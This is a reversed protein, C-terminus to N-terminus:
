MYNIFNFGLFKKSLSQLVESVEQLIGTAFRFVVGFREGIGLMYKSAAIIEIPYIQWKSPELAETSVYPPLSGCRITISTCLHVSPWGNLVNNCSLVPDTGCLCPSFFRHPVWLEYNVAWLKCACARHIVRWFWTLNIGGICPWDLMLFHILWNCWYPLLLFWMVRDIFYPFCRIFDVM